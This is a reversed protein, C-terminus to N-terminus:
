INLGMDHLTPLSVAPHHEQHKSLPRSGVSAAPAPHKLARSLAREQWVMIMPAPVRLLRGMGGGGAQPMTGQERGGATGM